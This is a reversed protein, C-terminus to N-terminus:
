PPHVLLPWRPVDARESPAAFLAELNDLRVGPVLRVTHAVAAVAPKGARVEERWKMLHQWKGEPVRLFVM